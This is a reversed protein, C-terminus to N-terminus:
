RYRTIKWILQDSRQQLTLLTRGLTHWGQEDCCSFTWFLSVIRLMKSGDSDTKSRKLLWFFHSISYKIYSPSKHIKRIKIVNLIWLGLLLGKVSVKPCIQGLDKDNKSRLKCSQESHLAHMLSDPLCVELIRALISEIKLIKLWKQPRSPTKKGARVHWLGEFICKKKRRLGM